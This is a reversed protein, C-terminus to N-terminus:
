VTRVCTCVQLSMPLDRELLALAMNLENELEKVDAITHSERFLKTNADIFKFISSRQKSGLMGRICYKLVGQSM